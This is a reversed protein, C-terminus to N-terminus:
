YYPYGMRSSEPFPVCNVPARMTPAVDVRGRKLMPEDDSAFNSRTRTRSGKSNAYQPTPAMMAPPANWAMGNPTGGGWQNGSFGTVVMGGGAALKPSSGEFLARSDQRAPQQTLADDDEVLLRLLEQMMALEEANFGAFLEMETTQPPPPSSEDETRVAPLQFPPTRKTQSAKGDWGLSDQLAVVAM